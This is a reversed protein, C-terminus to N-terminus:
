ANLCYCSTKLYFMRWSQTVFPPPPTNVENDTYGWAEDKTEDWAEDKTEDWVEDRFPAEFYYRYFINLILHSYNNYLLFLTLLM